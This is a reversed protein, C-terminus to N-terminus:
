VVRSSHQGGLVGFGEAQNRATQDVQFGEYCVSEGEFVSHASEM